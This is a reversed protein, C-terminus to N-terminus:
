KSSSNPFYFSVILTALPLAGIKIFEFIAMLARNEPSWAYATIACSCLLALVLLLQKAFLLRDAENIRIASGAVVYNNSNRVPIGNQDSESRFEM